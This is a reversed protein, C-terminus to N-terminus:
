EFTTFNCFSGIFNSLCHSIVLSLGGGGVGLVCIAGQQGMKSHYHLLIVYGRIFVCVCVCVRAM